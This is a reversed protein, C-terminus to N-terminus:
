RKKPDLLVPSVDKIGAKISADILEVVHAHLLKDAIEITLHIKKGKNAAVLEKLKKEFAAVDAKLDLGDKPLDGGKLTLKEIQGKETATVRAVFEIDPKEDARLPVSLQGEGKGAGRDVRWQSQTHGTSRAVKTIVYVKEFPCDAHVRLALAAPEKNTPDLQVREKAKRNLFIRVQEANELFDRVDPADAPRLLVQGREDINLYVAPDTTKDLDAADPVMPLKIEDAALAPGGFALLLVSCIASRM